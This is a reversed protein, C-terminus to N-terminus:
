FLTELRSESRDNETVSAKLTNLLSPVPISPLLYPYIALDISFAECVQRHM